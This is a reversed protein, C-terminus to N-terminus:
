NKKIIPKQAMVSVQFAKFSKHTFHIELVNDGEALMRIPTIQFEYNNSASPATVTYRGENKVLKKNLVIKDYWQTTAAAKAVDKPLKINLDYVPFKAKSPIRLNTRFVYTNNGGPNTTTPLAFVKRYTKAKTIWKSAWPDSEGVRKKIQKDEGKYQNGHEVIARAKLVGNDDPNTTFDTYLQTIAKAPFEDQKIRNLKNYLSKIRTQAAQEGKTSFTPEYVPLFAADQYLQEVGNYTTINENMLKRAKNVSLRSIRNYLSDNYASALKNKKPISIGPNLFNKDRHLTRLASEAKAWDQANFANQISRKQGDLSLKDVNKYLKKLFPLNDNKKLMSLMGRYNKQNKLTNIQPVLSDAQRYKALMAKTERRLNNIERNQTNVCSYNAYSKYEANGAAPLRYQLKSLKTIISGFFTNSPMQGHSDVSKKINEFNQQAEKLVKSKQNFASVFGTFQTFSQAPMIQASKAIDQMEKIPLDIPASDQKGKLEQSYHTSVNQLASAVTGNLQTSISVPFEAQHQYFTTYDGVHAVFDVASTKAYHFLKSVFLYDNQFKIETELQQKLILYNQYAEDTTNVISAPFIAEIDKLENQMSQLASISKELHSIKSVFDYNQLDLPSGLANYGSSDIKNNEFTALFSEYRNEFRFRWQEIYRYTMDLEFDRKVLDIVWYFKQVSNHIAYVSQKLPQASEDKIEIIRGKGDDFTDTLYSNIVAKDTIDLVLYYNKDMAAPFGIFYKKDKDLEFRDKDKKLEIFDTTLSNLEPKPKLEKYAACRLLFLVSLLLLSLRRM